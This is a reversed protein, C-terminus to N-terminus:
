EAVVDITVNSNVDTHLHIVVEHEGVTRLPGDPLRVEQKSVEVGQQTLTEAIEATGISGFLKGEDGAQHSISVSLKSLADARAEAAKLLEAEAKELEARRAEFAALNEKTAQVAKGQPILFNRGFGAKVAVKDGLNGLNQVKELLIVDM